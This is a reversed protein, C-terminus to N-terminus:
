FEKPLNYHIILKLIVAMVLSGFVAVCVYERTRARVYM